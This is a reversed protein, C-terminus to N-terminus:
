PSEPGHLSLVFMAFAFTFTKPLSGFVTIRQKLLNSAAVAAVATGKPM